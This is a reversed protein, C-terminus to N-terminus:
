DLSLEDTNCAPSRANKTQSDHTLIVYEARCWRGCRRMVVSLTPMSQGHWLPILGAEPQM